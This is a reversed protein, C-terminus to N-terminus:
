ATCRRFESCFFCLKLLIKNKIKEKKIFEFFDSSTVLLFIQKDEIQNLTFLKEL